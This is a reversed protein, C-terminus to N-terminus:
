SPLTAGSEPLEVVPLSAQGRVDALSVLVKRILSSYRLTISSSLSQSWSIIPIMLVFSLIQAMTSTSSSYTQLLNTWTPPWKLPSKYVHNRTMTYLAVRMRKILRSFYPCRHVCSVHAYTAHQPLLVSLTLTRMGLGAAGGYAAKM